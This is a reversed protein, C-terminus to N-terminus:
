ARPEEPKVFKTYLFSAAFAVAAVGVFAGVRYLQKLNALDHLFLKLLTAGLLSLSAYRVVRLKKAIGALLLALAFLAWAISYTMDRAFNGSFEFTLARAGVPTFCDAIEINLLVFALVTGLTAPLARGGPAGDEVLQAGVFLCVTVIGYAYLYWNLIPTASRAHYELVAPNVALRAFAVCLLGIGVWPLGWHPVRRYLWLLAVGELAWGITIWQREFQIPFILTIFFLTAGGLWALQGVKRERVFALLGLLPLIAFAAPLLGM